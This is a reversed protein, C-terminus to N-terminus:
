PFNQPQITVFINHPPEAYRSMLVDYEEGKLLPMQAEMDRLQREIAMIPEFVTKLENYVTNQSDIELSQSFYGLTATKPMVTEGEDASLEGTIIKFLTSKGAGNVGVIGVREKEEIHFSIKELIADTGFAKSVNNLALIM